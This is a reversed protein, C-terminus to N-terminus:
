KCPKVNPKVTHGPLADSDSGRSSRPHIASKCHTESFTFDMGLILRSSSAESHSARNPAGAGAFTLASHRRNAPASIYRHGAVRKKASLCEALYLPIVVAIIGCSLGQLLRGVFLLAFGHSILILGLSTVFLFGSAIMMRRRGFWDALLGGILSSIMSGALVAAGIFSTQQVSLSITKSLYLLAAAIIGIDVGYLLGGFGAIVVIFRGYAATSLRPM